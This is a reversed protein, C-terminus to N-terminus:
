LGRLKDLIYATVAIVCCGFVIWYLDEAMCGGM